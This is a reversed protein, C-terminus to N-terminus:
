QPCINRSVSCRDKLTRHPHGSGLGLQGDRSLPGLCVAATLRHHFTNRFVCCRDTITPPHSSTPSLPPQESVHLMQRNNNTPLLPHPPPTAPPSNRFVCCRDTITPPYSPPPPPPLSNLFMCCRDTITPPYSSPPPLSPPLASNLSM